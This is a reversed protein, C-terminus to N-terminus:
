NIWENMWENMRDNMEFACLILNLIIVFNSFNNSPCKECKSYYGKILWGGVGNTFGSKVCVNSETRESTSM